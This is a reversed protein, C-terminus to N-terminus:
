VDLGENKCLNHFLRGLFALDVGGGGWVCM